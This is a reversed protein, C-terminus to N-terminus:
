QMHQHHQMCLISYVSGTSIHLLVEGETHIDLLMRISGYENTTGLPVSPSLMSLSSSRHMSIRLLIRSSTDVRCTDVVIVATPPDPCLVDVQYVRQKACLVLSISLLMSQHTPTGRWLVLTLIETDSTYVYVSM